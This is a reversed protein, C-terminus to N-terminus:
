RLVHSSKKPTSYMPPSVTNPSDKTPEISQLLESVLM